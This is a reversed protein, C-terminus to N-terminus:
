PIHTSSNNNGGSSNIISIICDASPAAHLQAREEEQYDQAQSETGKEEKSM